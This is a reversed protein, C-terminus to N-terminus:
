PIPSTDFVAGYPRMLNDVLAPVTNFDLRGTPVLAAPDVRDFLAFCIQSNDYRSRYALGDLSPFATHFDLALARSVAYDDVSIEGVHVGHWQLGEDMLKAVRLSRQLQLYSAARQDVQERRLVRSPHRLVTEVYAGPLQEAAYLIRYEGDPADFRNAPPAGQKPGFFVAGNTQWHIRVLERGGPIEFELLGKTFRSSSGAAM